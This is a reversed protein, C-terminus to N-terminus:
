RTEYMKAWIRGDMSCAFSLTARQYYLEMWGYIKSDVCGSGWFRYGGMQVAGHFVRGPEICEILGSGQVLYCVKWFTRNEITLDTTWELRPKLTSVTAGSTVLPLYAAPTLTVARAPTPSLTCALITVLLALKTRDMEGRVGSLGTM